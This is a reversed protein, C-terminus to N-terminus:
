QEVREPDRELEPRAVVRRGALRLDVPEGDRLNRTWRGGGPTLLLDGDRVYSVPQHYTRSTVRGTHSVLMLAGSLPTRFPLRLAARMPVNAVKMMRAQREMRGPARTNRSNTM